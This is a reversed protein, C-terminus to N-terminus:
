WTEDDRLKKKLYCKNSHWPIPTNARIGLIILQYTKLNGKSELRPQHQGLSIIICVKKKSFEAMITPFENHIHIHPSVGQINWMWSVLHQLEGYTSMKIKKYNNYSVEYHVILFSLPMVISM